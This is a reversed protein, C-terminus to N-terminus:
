TAVALAARETAANTRQLDCWTQMAYYNVKAINAAQRADAMASVHEQYRTDAEAYMEAKNAPEGNSLHETAITSRVSKRTQELITAAAEAEAWQQGAKTLREFVHNANILGDHSM